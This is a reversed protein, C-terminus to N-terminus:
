LSDSEAESSAEAAALQQADEPSVGQGPTVPKLDDLSLCDLLESLDIVPAAGAAEETEEEEEDTEWQSSEEEEARQQRQRGEQAKAVKRAKNAERRRQQQPQQQQQKKSSLRVKAAGMPAKPFARPDKYIAVQKRLEADEELDRKFQELDEDEAAAAAGRRAAGGRRKRTDTCRRAASAQGGGGRVSGVEEEMLGDDQQKQLSRLVWQRRRGAKRFPFHKKVLMVEWPAAALGQQEPRGKSNSSSSSSSCAQSCHLDREVCADAFGSLNIRQFDYGAAFDGAQLLHGLHSRTLIPEGEAIGSASCRLLEIEALLFGSGGSSSSSSRATADTSTAPAAAAKSSDVAMADDAATEAAAAQQQQKQQQQQRKSAQQHPQQHQPLPTVSLVLFYSLHKRTCLALYSDRFYVEASLELSRATFPDVLTLSSGVRCCLSLSSFGGFTEKAKKAPIFVLDDKCIAALEVYVTHKYFYTNSNCDHSILQKSSRTSCPFRSCCFTVFAAAAQKNPFHFDLGDKSQVARLLKELIHQQQLVLQELFLFTRKHECRQRVQVRAGWGAHPTFAKKCDECQTNHVLGQVNFAQEVQAKSELVDARATIRVILKNSHAETFVWRCDVIKSLSKLGRIKKLCLALLERSEMLCPLWKGQADRFRGCQKCHDVVFTRCVQSSVDLEEQLCSLCKNRPNPPTVAGCICCLVQAPTYTCSLQQFDEPAAASAGAAGSM